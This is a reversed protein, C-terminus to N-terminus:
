KGDAIFDHCGDEGGEHPCKLYTSPDIELLEMFRTFGSLSFSDSFLHGQVNKM